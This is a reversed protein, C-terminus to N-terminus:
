HLYCNHFGPKSPLTIIQLSYVFLLSFKVDQLFVESVQKLCFIFLVKAHVKYCMLITILLVRRMTLPGCKLSGLKIDEVSKYQCGKLYKCKLIDKMQPLFIQIIYLFTEVKINTQSM